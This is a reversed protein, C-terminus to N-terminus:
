FVRRGEFYYEPTGPFTDEFVEIALQLDIPAELTITNDVEGCLIWQVNDVMTETTM